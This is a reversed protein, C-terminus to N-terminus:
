EHLLLKTNMQNVKTIHTNRITEELGELTQIVQQENRHTRLHRIPGTHEVSEAAYLAPALIVPRPTLQASSQSNQGSQRQTSVIYLSCISAGKTM